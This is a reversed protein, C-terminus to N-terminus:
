KAPEDSQGLEMFNKYTETDPDAGDVALLKHTKEDYVLVVATGNLTGTVTVKHDGRQVVPDPVGLAIMADKIQTDSMPVPNEIQDVAVTTQAYAGGTTVALAIAASKAALVLLTASSKLM